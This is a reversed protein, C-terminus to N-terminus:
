EGSYLLTAVISTAIGLVGTAALALLRGRWRVYRPRGGPELIEITPGAWTALAVVAGILAGSGFVIVLRAARSDVNFVSVVLVSALAWSGLLAIPIALFARFGYLGPVGVSDRPALVDALQRALGEVRTRDSGRVSLKLGDGFLGGDLSIQVSELSGVEISLTQIRGLDRVDIADFLESHRDLNVTLGDRQVVRISVDPEANIWQRLESVARETADHLERM